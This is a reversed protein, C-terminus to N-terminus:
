PTRTFIINDETLTFRDARGDAFTLTCVLRDASDFVTEIRPREAVARYPFVVTIFRPNLAKLTGSARRFFDGYPYTSGREIFTKGTLDDEGVAVTGAPSMVRVWCNAGTRHGEIVLSGDPEARLRNRPDTVFRTTFEVPKAPVEVQADDRWVLYPQPGRVFYVKRDCVGVLAAGHDYAEAAQGRVFAGHPEERYAVVRGESGRIQEADAIRLTTHCESGAPKYGPDALFTEGLAHLTVANEDRHNHGPHFDKGSTFSVHSADEGSWKDRLFVRGSAFSRGLPWGAESPSRPEVPAEGWLFLFPAALGDVMPGVGHDGTGRPGVAELWAWLHVPLRYHLMPFVAAASPPIAENDNMALMRGEFPLLKWLIQEPVLPYLPQEAALDPGGARKLATAFPVAGLQGYGLYDHGETAYGTADVFLKLYGRVRDTARELWRPEDGLVLACLGLAGFHVANHNCSTVGPESRGWVTDDTALLHGFARLEARVEAREADTLFPDLWDAGIACAQAADSYQLHTLWQGRNTPETQRVVALLVAKAKHFYREEGTIWGAFALIGVRQQWARGASGLGNEDKVVLAYPETATAMLREAKALLAARAERQWATSKARARIAPVEAASFFLRPGRPEAFASSGGGLLTLTVLQFVFRAASNKM